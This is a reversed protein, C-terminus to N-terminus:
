TFSATYFIQRLAQLTNQYIGPHHSERPGAINLVQFQNMKLWQRIPTLNDESLDLKFYPKKRKKCLAMTLGTGRDAKGHIIILTADSDRVNMETREAYGASSTEILPYHDPIRGDEAKRNKPCWGGCTINNELCFDLAARDVGSQGGSIIKM